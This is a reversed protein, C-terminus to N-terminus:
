RDGRPLANGHNGGRLSRPLSGSYAKARRAKREAALERLRDRHKAEMKELRAYMSHREEDSLASMAVALEARARGVACSALVRPNVHDVWQDQM